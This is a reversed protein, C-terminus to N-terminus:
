QFGLLPCLIPNLTKVLLPHFYMLYSSVELLLDYESETVM